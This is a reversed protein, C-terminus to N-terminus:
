CLIGGLISHHLTYFLWLIGWWVRWVITIEGTKFWQSSSKPANNAEVKNQKVTFWEVPTGPLAVGKEGRLVSAMQGNAGQRCETIEAVQMAEVQTKRIRKRCSFFLFFFFQLQALSNGFFNPDSIQLWTFVAWTCHHKSKPMERTSVRAFGWM